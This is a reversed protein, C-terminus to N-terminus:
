AADAVDFIRPFRHFYGQYDVFILREGHVRCLTDDFLESWEIDLKQGALITGYRPCPHHGRSLLDDACTIDRHRDAAVTGDDM